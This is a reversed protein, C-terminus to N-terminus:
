HKSKEISKIGVLQCTKEYLAKTLDGNHAKEAMNTESCDAFYKGTTKQLGSEIALYVTTQCGQHPNKTFLWIWPVMPAKLIISSSFPSHRMHQTGRVMGPHLSNFTVGSGKLRKAMEVTMMVLALKSQGFAERSSYCGEMNLNEMHIDGAFNAVCSVNIVRGKRAKLKPLLLHTLLFPGLYNTQLHFEFGDVTRGEPHFVVGANNILIDVETNGLNAVFQKISEFSCLDLKEVILVANQAVKRVEDRAEEGKKEDRCALILKAGKKALEKATELGIGCNAGTVIVWKSDIRAKSPCDAGGMYGKICTVVGVFLAVVWPWWSSLPDEGLYKVFEPPEADVM